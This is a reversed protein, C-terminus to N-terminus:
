FHSALSHIVLLRVLLSIVSVLFIKFIMKGSQPEITVLLVTSRGLTSTGSGANQQKSSYVYNIKTFLRLLVPSCLLRCVEHSLRSLIKTQFFKGGFTM